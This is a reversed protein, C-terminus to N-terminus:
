LLYATLAMSIRHGLAQETRMSVQHKCASSCASRAKRLNLLPM